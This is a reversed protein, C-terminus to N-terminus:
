VEEKDEEQSMGDNEPGHEKVLTTSSSAPKEENSPKSITSKSPENNTQISKDTKASRCANGMKNRLIEVSM